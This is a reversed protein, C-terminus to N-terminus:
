QVKISIERPKVEEAKPVVVTLVGDKFSADIKERDIKKTLTLRREFAGYAREAHHYTTDNTEVERKKEGSIVLTDGDLSIKIDETKLGPLEAKLVFAAEEEHVDLAPSWLTSRFPDAGFFERVISNMERSPNVPSWRVLM